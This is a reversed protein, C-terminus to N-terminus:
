RATPFGGALLKALQKRTAAHAPRDALNHYEGHDTEHDYLEIGAKGNPGWETYRWRKTRVSRGVTQGRNVQSYAAEKGPHAPNEFVPRLSAGAFAHPAQLGAYDVLTPYLDVFEVIARTPKGMGKAGPVWAIMPSRSGFEYVTVKNWWGHEGLHYGHDGIVVVITNDWLKHRDMAAFIKGLQADVFSVCAQYARKFERREKDTFADFDKSNPIAYRVQPSRNAPEVALKTSGEPYLDFYEKPAIFPDHPKHLGLALFFPKSHHKELIRLAANTNIGDPQADDGGEAARWECWKLRGDTLNRGEGTRGIKPADHLSDFFFDWSLPDQFLVPKGAENQGMHFIKGIGATYYGNQRFIQPLSVIDPMAKRFTVDNSVIGTQDPRLGTLFSARSPNCVPYQAYANHCLMGMKALRDLHPSIVEEVGYCGLEPRLDDVVVFLVNMPREARAQLALSLLLAIACIIAGPMSGYARDHSRPTRGLPTWGGKSERALRGEPAEYARDHSRPTQGPPTGGGKSERALRRISPILSSVFTIQFEIMIAQTKPM